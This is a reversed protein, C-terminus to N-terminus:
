DCSCKNGNCTYGDDCERMKYQCVAKWRSSGGYYCDDPQEFVGGPGEGEDVVIDLDAAPFSQSQSQRTEFDIENEPIEIAASDCSCKDGNCTYGDDCEKMKIKCVAKWRESGGYYCDDPQDLVGGPGEGEDVVIDLDAAPFSQSQRTEFDIENEPIEIAASDCSCKDGNCTYGDDCEKMKIKCVAKWRESGGYYCDDPQELVGGPGEDENSDYDDIAGTPSESPARALIANEDQALLAREEDDLPGCAFAAIALFITTTLTVQKKM